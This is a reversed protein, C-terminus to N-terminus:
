NKTTSQLSILVNVRWFKLTLMWCLNSSLSSQGSWTGECGYRYILVQKTHHIFTHTHTHIKKKNQKKGPFSHDPSLSATEWDSSCNLESTFPMWGIAHWWFRLAGTVWSNSLPFLEMTIGRLKTCGCVRLMLAGPFHLIPMLLHETIYDRFKAPRNHKLLLVM